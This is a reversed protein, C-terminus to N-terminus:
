CSSEESIRGSNSVVIKHSKGGAELCVSGQGSSGSTFVAGGKNFVILDATTSTAITTPGSLDRSGFETVEDADLDRDGDEDCFYVLKLPPDTGPSFRAGYYLSTCTTGSNAPAGVEGWPLGEQISRSRMSTLVAKVMMVDRALADREQWNRYNPWAVTALLTFIALAVMLEIATIGSEEM